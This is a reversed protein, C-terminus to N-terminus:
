SQPNGRSVGVPAKAGPEARGDELRVVAPVFFGSGGMLMCVLGGLIFWVQVGLADGVPGAVLLGLPSIGSALSNIVTFVRGQMEPAVTAQVVALLPGNTIPMMFGVVFGAAVAWAFGTAPVIGILLAGVGVGLLGLLTTLIRRRFGGWVSLLVGGVVIGIGSVAELMGLDLAGRQFHGSVLLPMLSFAPTLLFNIMTAMVLIILLGPWGWIYRLGARVDGWLSTLGEGGADGTDLRQPQPVDMFLLPVIALLATLVDIAMIGYLPLLSYILAGLPPAAVSLIGQLAQNLGQIRSLHQKPVMLSMSAAMAPWHFAEGIARILLIVYIHWVQIAGSWFLYVLGVAALAILADAAIMVKRRSWRDVLAGAFPGLFVSPLMAVLTASALVTASGSTTTLWWVLVFQALRSGVLSFAQGTWIGFFSPM